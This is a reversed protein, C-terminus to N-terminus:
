RNEGGNFDILGRLNMYTDAVGVFILLSMIWSFLFCIVVTLVKLGMSEKERKRNILWFIFSIGMLLYITYCINTLTITYIEPIFEWGMLDSLLLFTIICILFTALSKPLRWQSLPKLKKVRLKLRMMIKDTLVINVWGIIFPAILFSSPLMMKVALGLGDVMKVASDLQEASLMEQMEPNAAMSSYVKQLEGTFQDISSSFEAIFNQGSLVQFMMLSLMLTLFAAVYAAALRYFGSQEKWYTYGVMCGALLLYMGYTLASVIDMFFILILTAAAGAIVAVKLGHKRAAIAAPIPIFFYFIMLFPVYYSLLSFIVALACLMAGDTVAKTKM